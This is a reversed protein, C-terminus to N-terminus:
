KRMTIDDTFGFDYSNSGSDWKTILSMRSSQKKKPKDKQLSNWKLHGQENKLKDSAESEGLFFYNDSIESFHYVLWNRKLAAGVSERDSAETVAACPAETVPYVTEKVLVENEGRWAGVCTNLQIWFM